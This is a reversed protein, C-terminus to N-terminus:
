KSNQQKNELENRCKRIFPREAFRKLEFFIGKEKELAFVFIMKIGALNSGLVDTFVQDGVLATHKRCIGLRKRAKNIGYTLPKAGCSVYDLSLIEAFPKVRESNNNSVIIMRVNRETMEKVWDSVGEAPLPNNHTTLTNDVDLILGKINNEALLEPTIDLVSNLVIDAHFLM